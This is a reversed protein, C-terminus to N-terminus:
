RYVIRGAAPATVVSRKRLYNELLEEDTVPKLSLPKAEKLMDFGDGGGAIFSNMVIRYRRNLKLPVTKGSAETFEAKSVRSGAPRSPDVTYRLGSVQLLEPGQGREGSVGHELAALLQEGTVEGLKVGTGFPLMAMLQGRNIEGAPLAARIGGGNTIAAVAGEPRGYDLMADALLMAELCEGRRCLDEGGPLSFPQLTAIKESTFETLKAAYKKVIARIEPDSPYSPKLELPGGSWSVPVGNRDFKVNLEGLYQTRYKATVVLVPAGSPSREVVPYPGEESGPGIYSHTHGGVIVDVDDVSRALERDAPLGLHTVAVIVNVGQAKLEKATKSLTERAATFLTHDCAKSLSRVEDNALGIIGVKVGRVERVIYPKVPSKLLPCGKEPALNAALVPFKLTETFKELELCGEDFEHNGLTMADYPIHADIKALMPWKSVTFFLTGQFQDGADLAIVNDNKEKASRIAAAIRGSGGTCNEDSLCANGKEDLGAVRSHTDNTHLITLELGDEQGRAGHKGACGNMMFPLILILALAAAGRRFETM